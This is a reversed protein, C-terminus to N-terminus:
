PRGCSRGPRTGLAARVASSVRLVSCSLQEPVSVVSVVPVPVPVVGSAQGGRCPGLDPEPAAAPEHSPHPRVDLAHIHSGAALACARHRPDLAARRQGDTDVPRSTQGQAAGDVASVGSAGALGDRDARVQGVRPRQRGLPPHATVDRPQAIGPSGVAASRISSHSSSVGQGPSSRSSLSSGELGASVLGSAERPASRSAGPRFRHLM